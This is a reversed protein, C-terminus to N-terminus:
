NGLGDKFYQEIATDGPFLELLHPKLDERAKKYKKIHRNSSGLYFVKVLLNGKDYQHAKELMEKGKSEYFLFEKGDPDNKIYFFYPFLSIMYGFLCLLKTNDEFHEIGYSYTEILNSKLLDYDIEENNICCDWDTMILWCESALRLLKELNDKENTWQEYLLARISEWQEVKEMESLYDVSSFFM